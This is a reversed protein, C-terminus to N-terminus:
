LTEELMGCLVRVWFTPLVVGVGVWVRDADHRDVLGLAHLPRNHKNRGKELIAKGRAFGTSSSNPVDQGPLPDNILRPIFSANFILSAEEIYCHGSTLFKQM